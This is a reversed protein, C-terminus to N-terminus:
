PAAARCPPLCARQRCRRGACGCLHRGSPPPPRLRLSLHRAKRAGAAGAPHDVVVAVAGGPLFYIRQQHSSSGQQRGALGVALLCRSCANPREFAPQWRNAFPRKCARGARVNGSGLRHLCLAAAAFGRGGAIQQVGRHAGGGPSARPGDHELHAHPLKHSRPPRRSTPQPRGCVKARPARAQLAGSPTRERRTQTCVDSDRLFPRSQM